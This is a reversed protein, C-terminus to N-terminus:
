QEAASPATQVPPPQWLREPAWLTEAQEEFDRGWRSWTIKIRVKAIYTVPLPKPEMDVPASAPMPPVPLDIKSVQWEWHYKEGMYNGSSSSEVLQPQLNLKAIINDLLFRAETYDRAQGRVFIGQRLGAQLTVMSVSLVMMAMVAEVLIYGRRNM